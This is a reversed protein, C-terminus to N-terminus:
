KIVKRPIDKPLRVLLEYNMQKSMETFSSVTIEANGQKGILVVEDGEDIEPYNSIDVVICNMNVIGIVSLRKGRILVRGINTFSRNFGHAYGVPIVATKTNKETLYTTGYGIYEGEKVKKVAMVRSKWSIIRKFSAKKKKTFQNKVKTEKSPWFGYLLIGIRVMDMITEPYNLVAASCATHRKKFFVGNNLFIESINNFEQIQNKIRNMNSINEAGGYHTCIGEIDLNDNYRKLTGLLYKFEERNFGTRNLGTEIEIHIKAKKGIKKSAEITKKLRSKNFIYFEIENEIAWPIADEGIKGLILIKKKKDTLAKWAIYAEYDDYAAFCDIGTEEAMSIFEKIGHGYANGKVVSVLETKNGILERIMEYNKKLANRSLEICGPYEPINM